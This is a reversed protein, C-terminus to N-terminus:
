TGLGQWMASFEPNYNANNPMALTGGSNQWGLLEVYDNAAFKYITAVALDPGSGSLAARFDSVIFTTGNMRMSIGRVGTANSAFNICGTLLYVGPSAITIRSTQTSTSHMGTPDFRNSDLTLAQWAGSTTHNQSASNYVRCTPPSGTIPTGAQGYAM